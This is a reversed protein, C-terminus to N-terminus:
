FDSIKQQNDKFQINQVLDLMKDEFPKLEPLRKPDLSSKFGFTEKFNPKTKKLFFTASWTM